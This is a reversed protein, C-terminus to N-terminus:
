LRDGRQHSVPGRFFERWQVLEGAAARSAPEPAKPRPGCLVARAPHAARTIHGPGDPGAHSYGGCPIRPSSNEIVLEVALDGARDFRHFTQSGPTQRYRLRAMTLVGDGATSTRFQVGDSTRFHDIPFLVSLNLHISRRRARLAYIPGIMVSTSSM